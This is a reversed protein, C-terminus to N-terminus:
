MWKNEKIEQDIEKSWEPKERLVEAVTTDEVPKEAQVAALQAKLGAIQSEIDKLLGEVKTKTEKENESILKSFNDPPYEIKISEYAKQMEDVLGPSKIVTKYHNWDIPKVEEPYKELNTRLATYQTRLAALEGRSSLPLRASLAAWDFVKKGVQRGAM